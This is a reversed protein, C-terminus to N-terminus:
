HRKKKRLIKSVLDREGPFFFGTLFLGGVYILSGLLLKISLGAIPNLSRWFDVLRDGILARLIGAFPSFDSWFYMISTLGLSFVVILLLRRIEFEIRQLSRSFFFMALAMAGYSLASSVAAGILGIRPLLLMNGGVSVGVGIFTVVLFYITKRKVYCITGLILYVAYLSIGLILPAVLIAGEWYDPIKAIIRLIEQASGGLVVLGWGAIFLFYSLVRSIVKSFDPRDKISFAYPIWALSLPVVVLFSVVNYFNLAFAFIGVDAQSLYLPIFVMRDLMGRGWFFLATPVLPLSYLFMSKLNNLSFKPGRSYTYVWITILVLLPLAVLADVEYLGKLGRGLVVLFIVLLGVKLAAIVVSFISYAGARKQSRLFSLFIFYSPTCLTYTGFLRLIPLLEKGGLGLANQVIRTNALLPALLIIVGGIVISVLLTYTFGTAIVRRRKDETDAKYYDAIVAQNLALMIVIQLLGYAAALISRVGYLETALYAAYLPALLVKILQNSANGIGYIVTDKSLIKLDKIKM